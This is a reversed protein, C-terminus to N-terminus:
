APLEGREALRKAARYADAYNDFDKTMVGLFSIRPKNGPIVTVTPENFALVNFGGITAARIPLVVIAHPIVEWDNAHTNRTLIGGSMWDAAPADDDMVFFGSYSHHIVTGEVGTASRVRDGEVGQGPEPKWALRKTRLHDSWESLSDSLKELGFQTEM